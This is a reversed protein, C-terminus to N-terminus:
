STLSSLSLTTLSSFFSTFHASFTQIAVSSSRSHSAIPHCRQAASPSSAVFTARITKWSIVFVAISLAISFGRFISRLRTLACCDRRTRSLSTHNLTEGTSQFFIRFPREAPRTCDTATFSITSRSRSIIANTGSSDQFSLTTRSAFPISNMASSAFIEPFPFFIFDLSSAFFIREVSQISM